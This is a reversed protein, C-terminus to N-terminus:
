GGTIERRLWQRESLAESARPTARKMNHSRLQWLRADRQDSSPRWVKWQDDGADLIGILHAKVLSPPLKFWEGVLRQADLLKHVAREIRNAADDNGLTAAFFIHLRYPNGTQLQDLRLIPNDAKGIKAPGRPSFAVVYVHSHRM